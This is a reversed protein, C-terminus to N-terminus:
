HQEATRQQSQLMKPSLFALVPLLRFPFQELNQGLFSLDLLHLQPFTITLYTQYKTVAETGCINRCPLHRLLFFCVPGKIASSMGTMKDTSHINFLCVNMVCSILSLLMGIGRDSVSQGKLSWHKFAESRFEYSTQSFDAHHYHCQASAKTLLCIEIYLNYATFIDM